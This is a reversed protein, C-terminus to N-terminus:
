FQDAKQYSEKTQEYERLQGLIEDDPVEGFMGADIQEDLWQKIKGVAEHDEDIRDHGSLKLCSNIWYAIGTRGSNFTIAVDTPEVKADKRKEPKERRQRRIGIVKRVVESAICESAFVFVRDRRREYDKYRSLDISCMIVAPQDKELNARREAYGCAVIRNQTFFTRGKGGKKAMFGEKVISEARSKSTGHWVTVSRGMVEGLESVYLRLEDVSVGYQAAFEELTLSPESGSRRQYEDALWVMDGEDFKRQHLPATEYHDAVGNLGFVSIAINKRRKSNKKRKGM